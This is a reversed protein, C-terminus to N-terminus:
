SISIWHGLEYWFHSVIHKFFHPLLLNCAYLKKPLFNRKEREGGSCLKLQPVSNVKFEQHGSFISSLHMGQATIRVGMHGGANGCAVPYNCTTHNHQHDFTVDRTM